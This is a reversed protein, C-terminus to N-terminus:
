GCTHQVPSQAVQGLQLHGWENCPLQVLNGKITRELEFSETIRHKHICTVRTRTLVSGKARPHSVTDQERCCKKLMWFVKNCFPVCYGMVETDSGVEILVTVTCLIMSDGLNSFAELIMWDLRGGIVFIEWWVVDRLVADSRTKFVELPQSEM